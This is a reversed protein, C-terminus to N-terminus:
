KDMKLHKITLYYTGIKNLKEENSDCYIPFRKTYINPALFELEAYIDLSITINCTNDTNYSISDIKGGMQAFDVNNVIIHNDDIFVSTSINDKFMDLNPQIM